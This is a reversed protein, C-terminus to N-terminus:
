GGMMGLLTSVTRWNRSTSVTGLKADFYANTLKSRAVGGPLDLFVERGRVVFADPASRAPDLAALRDPGPEDALFMVHLRDADIGSALYPNGEVVARLEDATRLVVPVRLGFRSAIGEAIARALGAAVDPSARFVVNGSQIYTRVDESGAEAFLAALDKMALANKGGVNIGRLLALHTAPM